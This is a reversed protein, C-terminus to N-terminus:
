SSNVIRSSAPAVLPVLFNNIYILLLSFFGCSNILCEYRGVSTVRLAECGDSLLVCGLLVKVLSTVLTFYGVM